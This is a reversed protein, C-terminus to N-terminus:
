FPFDDGDPLNDLNSEDAITTQQEASNETPVETIKKISDAFDIKEAIIETIYHKQNNNDTYNRTQIRGSLCIQLGTKLYKEAFDALKDWAVINIFDTQREEGQKVYKRNVALTFTAVKKNNAQSFKIEPAKTLRGLLISKNM